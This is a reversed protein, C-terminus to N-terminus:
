ALRSTAAEAEIMAALRELNLKGKGILVLVAARERPQATLKAQGPTWQLLQIREPADCSRLFGKARLLVPCAVDLLALLRNPDLPRALGVSLSALGTGADCPFTPLAEIPLAEAAAARVSPEEAPSALWQLRAKPNLTVIQRAMEQREALAMGGWRNLLVDDVDGLQAAVMDGVSADRLLVDLSSLDVLLETRDLRYGGAADFLQMLSRPRAVGSAEFVLRQPPRQWRRIASLQASLNGSIGCCACGNSLRLVEGPGVNSGTSSEILEADINLSGFDNILFLTDPLEGRRILTNIRTTKGSGLFGCLLHVAIAPTVQGSM